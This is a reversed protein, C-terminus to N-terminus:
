GASIPLGGPSEILNEREPKAEPYRIFDVVIDRIRLMALDSDADRGLRDYFNVLELVILGTQVHLKGYLSEAREVAKLYLREAEYKQGKRDFDVADQLMESLIDQNNM